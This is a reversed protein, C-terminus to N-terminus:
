TSATGRVDGRGPGAACGHWATRRHASRPATRALAGPDVRGNNAGADTSDLVATVAISTWRREVCTACMQAIPKPASAARAASRADSVASSATCRKNVPWNM